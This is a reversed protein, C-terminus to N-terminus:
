SKPGKYGKIAATCNDFVRSSLNEIRDVKAWKLFNAEPCGATTMLSRLFDIETTSLLDSVDGGAAGGDDDDPRGPDGITVNFIMLILYRKSYSVASAGAHTPTMVANGKAGNTTVACDYQYTRTFLGRAVYCIVRVHDPLPCDVMSFSLSFGHKDAYIPRLKGVVQYLTAYKAKDSKADTEVPRMEAQCANMAVNFAEEAEERRIKTRLDAIAELRAVPIKPDGAIRLLQQDFTLPEAITVARSPTVTSRSTVDKKPTVAAIAVESM